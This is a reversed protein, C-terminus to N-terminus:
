CVNLTDKDPASNPAPMLCPWANVCLDGGAECPTVSSSLHTMFLIAYRDKVPHYNIYIASLTHLYFQCKRRSQKDGFDSM